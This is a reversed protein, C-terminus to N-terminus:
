VPESPSRSAVDNQEVNRNSSIKAKRGRALGIFLCVIGGVVSIIGGTVSVVYLENYLEGLPTPYKGPDFLLQVAIPIAILAGGLTLAKKGFRIFFAM